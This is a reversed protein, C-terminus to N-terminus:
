HPCLHAATPRVDGDSSSGDADAGGMLVGIAARVAEVYPELLERAVQAVLDPALRFAPSDRGLRPNQSSALAVRQRALVWRVRPPLLRHGKGLAEATGAGGGKALEAAAERVQDRPTARDTVTAWADFWSEFTAHVALYAHRGGLQCGAADEAGRCCSWHAAQRGSGDCLEGRHYSCNTV